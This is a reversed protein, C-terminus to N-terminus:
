DSKLDMLILYNIDYFADLGDKADAKSLISTLASNLADFWVSTIL